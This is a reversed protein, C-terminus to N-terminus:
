SSIRAALLMKWPLDSLFNTHQSILAIPNSSPDSLYDEPLPEGNILVTRGTPTNNNAYLEIDNLLTTKGCGTPGVVSVIDGM